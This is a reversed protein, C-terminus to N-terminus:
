CPAPLCPANLRYFLRTRHRLVLTGVVFSRWLNMAPDGGAIKKRTVCFFLRRGRCCLTASSATRRGCGRGRYVFLPFGMTERRLRREKPESESAGGGSEYPPCIGGIMVPTGTAPPRGHPLPEARGQYRRARAKGGRRRETHRAPAM